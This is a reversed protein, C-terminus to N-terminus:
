MDCMSWQIKGCRKKGVDKKSKIYKKNLKVANLFIPFDRKMLRNRKQSDNVFAMIQYEAIYLGNSKCKTM